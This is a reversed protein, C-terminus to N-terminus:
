KGFREARLKAGVKGIIQSLSVLTGKGCANTAECFSETFKDTSIRKGFIKDLPSSPRRIKSCFKPDNTAKCLARMFMDGTPNIM